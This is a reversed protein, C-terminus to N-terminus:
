VLELIFYARYQMYEREIKRGDLMIDDGDCQVDVYAYYTGKELAGYLEPIFRYRGLEKEPESLDLIRIGWRQWDDYKFDNSYVTFDEDGTITYTPYYVSDKLIQEPKYVSIAYGDVICNPIYGYMLLLFPVDRGAGCEIIVKSPVGYSYRQNRDIKEQLEPSEPRPPETDRIQTYLPPPGERTTESFSIEEKTTEASSTTEPTTTEMPTKGACSAFMVALCIVVLFLCIYKKM